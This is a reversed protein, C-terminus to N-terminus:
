QQCIVGFMMSGINFCDYDHMLFHEKSNLAACNQADGGGPEQQGMGFNGWFPTGLTVKSNDLWRWDGEHGEDVGGVWFNVGTIEREQMYDYIAGLLNADDIKVMQGVLQECLSKRETWTGTGVTDIFLCREGLPMYPPPCVLEVTRNSSNSSNSGNSSNSSGLLRPAKVESRSAPKECMLSHRETCSTDHMYFSDDWRLIACNEELGGTPQQVGDPYFLDGWLPTNMHIKSSTKIWEWKGEQQLDTAGVWYSVDTHGTDQLHQFISSLFNADQLVVLDSNMDQCVTRMDEWTGAVINEVALCRGGVPTFPPDCGNRLNSTPLNTTTGSVVRGALFLCTLISSWTLYWTM